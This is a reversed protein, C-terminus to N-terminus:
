YGTNQPLLNPNLLLETQPLPLLVDTADWGPKVASLVTQIAGFRKLDFFRHGFECFLETKREKLVAALLADATSATVLPLGAAQRVANLDDRGATLSGARIRAEARILYLEPLRFLISYETSTGNTTVKYKYSHSWSGSSTSITRVWNTFRLDGPEFAAVFDSRLASLSPPGVTFVFTGAELSNGGTSSPSFQWLTSTSQRLFSDAIASSSYLSTANLVSSAENAAEDWMGAYLYVRSLLARVVYQNPRTRDTSLYTEPLLTKALELDAIAKTYIVSTAEKSISRNIEYDTSTVYPIAGYLNTLYFHLLGRVFLAEGTLQNKDVSTLATSASVGMLVSNAAYLQNYSSNWWERTEASTPLVSNTNFLMAGNQPNGYFDLEDAYNGMQHSMGSSSGTFLGTTRMRAYINTMAATATTKDEFVTSSILQNNPPNVAVFDDCSLVSLSFMWLVVFVLTLGGYRQRLINNLNQFKTKM